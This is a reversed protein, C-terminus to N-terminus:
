QFKNFIINNLQLGPNYSIEIESITTKTVWLSFFNYYGLKTKAVSQYVYSHVYILEKIFM